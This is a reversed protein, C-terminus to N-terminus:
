LPHVKSTMATQRADAKAKRGQDAEGEKQSSFKQATSVWAVSEDSIISEATMVINYIESPSAKEVEAQNKWRSVLNELEVVARTYREIKRGTDAFETWSTLAAAASVIVLAWTSLGYASVASAATTLISCFFWSLKSSTVIM